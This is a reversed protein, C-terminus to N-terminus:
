VYLAAGGQTAMRGSSSSCGESRLAAMCTGHICVSPRCRCTSAMSVGPWPPLAASAGTGVRMASWAPGRHSRSSSLAACKSSPTRACIGSNKGQNLLSWVWRMTGPGGGASAQMRHQRRPQQRQATHLSLAPHLDFLDRQQACGLAQRGLAVKRETCGTQFSRGFALRQHAHHRRRQVGTQARGQGPPVQAAGDLGTFHHTAFAQYVITDNLELSCPVSVFRQGSRVQVQVPTPQDDHFLDCTYVGGPEVFLDLTVESHSLAPALYDAPRKGLAREITDMSEEIMGLEQAQSM